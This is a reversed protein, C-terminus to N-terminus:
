AGLTFSVEIGLEDLNVRTSRVYAETASEKLAGDVYVRMLVAIAKNSTNLPISTFVPSVAVGELSASVPTVAVFQELTAPQLALEESTGEAYTFEFSNFAVTVANQTYTPNDFTISALIKKNTQAVGASAIYVVYDHYYTGSSDSAATPWAYLLPANDADLAFGTNPDVAETNTVYKYKSTTGNEDYTIPTLPAVTDTFNVVVDGGVPMTKSIVLSESAKAQVSMGTAKVSANASFWAVTGTVSAATSLLLMGLAPIIIKTKKM